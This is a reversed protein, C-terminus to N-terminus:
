ITLTLGIVFMGMTWLAKSLPWVRGQGAMQLSASATLAAFAGVAALHASKRVLTRV